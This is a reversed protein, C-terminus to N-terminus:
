CLAGDPICQYSGWCFSCWSGNGCGSTRCDQPPPPPCARLTCRVTGNACSCTNCGDTSGFAEGNKYFKGGFFCQDAPKCLGGCDAGGNNPDCTDRPDDVCTEGVGCALGRIGGCSQYCHGPIDAVVRNGYCQYGSPCQHSNVIFGNCSIDAPKVLECKHTANNCEAVSHDDPFVIAPCILPSRCQLSDHYASESGVHVATYDLGTCCNKPIKVCDADVKCAYLDTAAPTGNLSVTFTASRLSYERFVIYYTIIDPNTNGPLTATIHSNLNTGTADDNMKVTKFSNDLLWAVSDGGNGSKVWIDVQDGKHGGFKFARYKPPNKYSVAASTEGYSLSGVIAWGNTGRFTDAKDGAAQLEAFDDTPETKAQQDEGGCAPAAFMALLALAGGKMMRTM